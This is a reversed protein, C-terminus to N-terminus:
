SRKRRVCIKKLIYGNCEQFCFVRESCSPSIRRLCFFNVLGNKLFITMSYFVNVATACLNIAVVSIKSVIDITGLVLWNAGPITKACRFTATIVIASRYEDMVSSSDSMHIHFLEV